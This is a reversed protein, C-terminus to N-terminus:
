GRLIRRPPVRCFGAWVVYPWRGSRVGALRLDGAVPAKDCTRRDTKPQCSVVPKGNTRRRRKADENGGRVRERFRQPDTGGNLSTPSRAGPEGTPKKELRTHFRSRGSEM